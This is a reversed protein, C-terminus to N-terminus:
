HLHNERRINNELKIEEESKIKNHKEKEIVIERDKANISKNLLEQKNQTHINNANIAKLAELEEDNLNNNYGCYM